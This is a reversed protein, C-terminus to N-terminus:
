LSQLLNNKRTFPRIQGCGIGFRVLGRLAGESGQSVGAETGIKEVRRQRHHGVADLVHDAVPHHELFELRGGQAAVRDQRVPQRHQEEADEHSREGVAVIGAAQDLDAHQQEHRAREGPADQEEGVRQFGPVGGDNESHVADGAYEPSWRALHQQVVDDARLL